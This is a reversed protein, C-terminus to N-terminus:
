TVDDVPIGSAARLAAQDVEPEGPMMVRVGAVGSPPTPPPACGCTSCWDTVLGCFVATTRLLSLRSGSGWAFHMLACNRRVGAFVVVRIFPLSLWVRGHYQQSM